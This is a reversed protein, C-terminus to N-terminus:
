STTDDQLVPRDGIDKGGQIEDILDSYSDDTLAGVFDRKDLVSLHYSQRDIV